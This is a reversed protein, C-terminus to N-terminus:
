GSQSGALVVAFRPAALVGSVGAACAGSFGGAGARFRGKLMGGLTSLAMLRNERAAIAGGLMGVILTLHQVLATSGSLGVHLTKRLLAELLPLVAIATLVVSLIANELKM